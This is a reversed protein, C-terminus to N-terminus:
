DDVWREDIEKWMIWQSPFRDIWASMYDAVDQMGGQIDTERDGSARPHFTRDVCVHVRRDAGRYAAMLLVPAGTKLALAIPGRHVRTARGLMRVTTMRAVPPADFFVSVAGGARVGEIVDRLFRARDVLAGGGAEWQANRDRAIARGAATAETADVDLAIDTVRLGMRTLWAGVLTFPGFHVLPIVAGRKEAIVRMVVDAGDVVFWEAFRPHHLSPLLANEMVFAARARFYDRTAHADLRSGYVARLNAHVRRRMAGHLLYNADGLRDCVAYFVGRPLHPALARLVVYAAVKAADRMM